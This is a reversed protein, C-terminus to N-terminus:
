LSSKFINIMPKIFSFKLFLMQKNDTKKSKKIACFIESYNQSKHVKCSEVM